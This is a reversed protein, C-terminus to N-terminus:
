FSSTQHPVLLAPLEAIASLTTFHHRRMEDDSASEHSWTTLYPIHVAQAGINLVPLIDSLFSNGVMLFSEPTIDLHSLLRRYDDETKASMVEAHHFYSSLGSERLKREQDLLDGKTAVILRFHRSLQEVVERVGDLLEVPQAIMRKATSLCDAMVAPDVNNGMIEQAAEIMSLTFGKVGYGYIPLNNLEIRYLASLTMNVDSVWPLMQQAFKKEAIRFLYENHWLTDDADFGIIRVANM